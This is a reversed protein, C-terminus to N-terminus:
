EPFPRLLREAPCPEDHPELQVAARLAAHQGGRTVADHEPAAPPPRGLLEAGPRLHDAELQGEVRAPQGAIDRDVRGDAVVRGSRDVAAIALRDLEALPPVVHMAGLAPPGPDAVVDADGAAARDDQQPRTPRDAGAHLAVVGAGEVHHEVAVEPRGTRGRRLDAGVAPEHGVAVLKRADRSLAGPPEAVLVKGSVLAVVTRAGVEVGVQLAASMASCSLDLPAPSSPRGSKLTGTPWASTTVKVSSRGM